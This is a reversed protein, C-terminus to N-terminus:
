RGAPPAAPPFAAVNEAVIGTAKALQPTEGFLGKLYIENQFESFPGATVGAVIGSM